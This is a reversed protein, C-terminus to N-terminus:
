AFFRDATILGGLKGAACWEAEVATAPVLVVGSASVGAQTVAAQLTRRMESWSATFDPAASANDLADANATAVRAPHHPAYIAAVRTAAGRLALLRAREPEPVAVRQPVLRLANGSFLFAVIDQGSAARVQAYTRYDLGLAKARAVRLRVIELPMTNPILAARAKRWAFRRWGRGPAM